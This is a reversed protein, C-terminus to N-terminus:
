GSPRYRAALASRSRIGLKRYIRTLHYQVTKEALFLTQAAERNTAGSAVLEAVAREQATLEAVTRDSGGAPSDVVEGLLGVDVGSAQLERDCREVYTAAGLSDYLDRASHLVSSAVGRKGARRMSQGFAFSIRARLYPRQLGRLHELAAEFQERAADPDGQAATIRGRAWAMRALDSPVPKERRIAEFGTLFRDAEEIRNTMVLANVYTDQWPWFSVRDQTWPDIEVLPELAELASAYDSRAEHFRVRALISPVQMARYTGPQVAALSVYRRAREWDGRMSWLEAATWYLLPRILPMRSTELRVAARSVTAAATDWDGLTLQTRALWAEAWLSIRLSGGRQETPVAAEFNVLATEVQDTRLALWASGMQIRQKQANEAVHEFARVYSRGAEVTRGQAYLGLGYIAESEVHAPTGPATLAMAREAWLTMTPGDWSAVGHLVMRQAVAAAAAPDREPDSDAWAQELQTRATNNHGSATSLYGLVSSRLSSSPMDEVAAAWMQAQSINGSAVLADVGRLLRQSRAPPNPSLRSAAFLATAVDSWAGVQARRRVFDELEVALDEDVGLTAAARHGLRDGEQPVVDAARCHLQQGRSPPLQAYVAEAAGPVVFEVLAQTPDVALRLLRARHGEDLADLLTEVGSVYGVADTTAAGGLVAVAEAVRVLGESSDELVRRVQALTRSSAPLSPFWSQWTEPPLEGLLEVIPQPMGRTHRVLGHAATSGLDLSFRRRALERVDEAELPGLRLHEVRHSNLLDLLGPPVHHARAHDLTLVFLVKQRHIRRLAFLLVRLSPEDLLHVDDIAVVVCSRAQLAMIHAALTDAFHAARAPTLDMEVEPRPLVAGEIGKSSHLPERHMLQSYGSLALGREWEDGAATLIRVESGVAECQALFHDLLASKGAGSPGNLVVTQVAGRRARSLAQLLGDLVRDRGVLPMEAGAHHDLTM